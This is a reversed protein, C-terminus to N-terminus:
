DSFKKSVRAKYPYAATSMLGVGSKELYYWANVDMGGQCGNGSINCDIVQQESNPCLINSNKLFPNFFYVSPLSISTFALTFVPGNLSYRLSVAVRKKKKM